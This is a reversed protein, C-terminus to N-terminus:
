SDLIEVAKPFSRFIFVQWLSCFLDKETDYVQLVLYLMKRLVTAIFMTHLKQTNNFLGWKEVWRHSYKPSHSYVVLFLTSPFFFASQLKKTKWFFLLHSFMFHSQFARSFTCGQCGRSVYACFMYALAAVWPKCPFMSGVSAPCGLLILLIPVLSHWSCCAPLLFSVAWFPKYRGQRGSQVPSSCLATQAQIINRGLMTDPASGKVWPWRKRSRALGYPALLLLYRLQSTPCGDLNVCHNRNVAIWPFSKKLKLGLTNVFVGSPNWDSNAQWIRSM